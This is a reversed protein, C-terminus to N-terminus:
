SIQPRSLEPSQRTTTPVSSVTVKMADNSMSCSGEEVATATSTCIGTVTSGVIICRLPIDKKVMDNAPQLAVKPCMLPEYSTRIELQGLITSIVADPLFASRAQIELVDLVLFVGQFSSMDKFNNPNTSDFSHLFRSRCAGSWLGVSDLNHITTFNHCSGDPTKGQKSEINNRSYRLLYELKLHFSIKLKANIPQPSLERFEGM